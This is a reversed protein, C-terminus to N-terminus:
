KNKNFTDSAPVSDIGYRPATKAPAQSQQPSSAQTQRDKYKGLGFTLLAGAAFSVPNWIYWYHQPWSKIREQREKKRKVKRLHEFSIFSYGAAKLRSFDGGKGYIEILDMELLILKIAEMFHIKENDSLESPFISEHYYIENWDAQGTHDKYFQIIKEALGELHPPRM